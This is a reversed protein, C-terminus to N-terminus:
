DLITRGNVKFFNMSSAIFADVATLAARLSLVTAKIASFHVIDQLLTMVNLDLERYLSPLLRWADVYLWHFFSNLAAGHDLWVQGSLTQASKAAATLQTSLGGLSHNVAGSSIFASTASSSLMLVAFVCFVPLFVKFVPGIPLKEAALMLNLVPVHGYAKEIPTMEGDDIDTDTPHGCIFERPSHLRQGLVARVLSACGWVLLFLLAFAVAIVLLAPIVGLVLYLLLLFHGLLVALTLYSGGFSSCFDCCCKSNCTCACHCMCFYQSPHHCVGKCNSGCVFFAGSCCLTCSTFFVMAALLVDSWVLSGLVLLELIHSYRLVLPTLMFNCDTSFTLQATYASFMAWFRVILYGSLAVQVIMKIPWILVTVREKCMKACDVTREGCATTTQWCANCCSCSSSPPEAADISLESMHAEHSYQAEVNDEDNVNVAARDGAALAHYDEHSVASDKLSESNKKRRCADCSFADVVRKAWWTLFWPLFAVLEALFLLHFTSFLLERTDRVNEVVFLGANAGCVSSVLQVFEDTSNLVQPPIDDRYQPGATAARVEVTHRQFLRVYEDFTASDFLHPSSSAPTVHSASSSSPIARNHTKTPGLQDLCKRIKITFQQWYSQDVHEAKIEEDSFRFHPQVSANATAPVEGLVRLDGWPQTVDALWQQREWLPRTSWERMEAMSRFHPALWDAETRMSTLITSNGTPVPAVGGQDVQLLLYPSFWISFVLIVTSFGHAQQDSSGMTAPQM